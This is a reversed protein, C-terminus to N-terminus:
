AGSGGGEFLPLQPTAAADRVRLPAAGGLCRACSGTAERGLATAMGELTTAQLSDARLWGLLALPDLGTGPVVVPPPLPLGYPCDTVQLPGFSRLHVQRAGADRLSRVASRLREVSTDPAFVLVCRKGRVAAEVAQLDVRSAHDEICVGSPEFAAEFPLGAQQSFALAATACCGPLAVVADAPTPCAAALARGLRHRVPHVSLGEFSGGVRAFSLWELACAARPFVGWPRLSRAPAGPELLVVEGASLERLEEAGMAKLASADSAAVHADARVGVWLPRFGRPDRAVVALEDTILALSFGGVMRELAEVLRNVLTRQRSQAMLHLLLEAYGGTGLLAGREVLLERLAPGNHVSGTLCAAVTQGDVLGHSSPGCGRSSGGGSGVTLLGRAAQLSPAAAARFAGCLCGGHESTAVERGAILTISALGGYRHGLGGLADPLAVCCGLGGAIVAFGSSDALLNRDM